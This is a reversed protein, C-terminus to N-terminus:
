PLEGRRDEPVDEISASQSRELARVYAVVAWRDKPSIQDGYAPMTRIGNSITNFLHGDERNRVTEEHMSLPPIWTGEQLREARVAVPGRGYGDLGHCQACYIDFLKRGRKLLIENIPMANTTAWRGEVLGRYLLDDTDAGGRSVTGPSQPRMARGDAFLPNVSQAKYKPQQDMDWILQLRTTESTRSRARLTVVPPILALAGVVLLAPLAWKRVVEPFRSEPTEEVVEVGISGAAELIQRTKVRDFKRDTAEVSVYFRDTTMRKTFRRSNFVGHYFTPLRNLAFMGFVAGFASFLITLEFAIPINAPVSFMPKGSVIVPYYISSTWWQLLLGTLFGAAGCLFVIYPLITRRVGMAEDLGHIPIPSHTDWQKYGEDRMVVSAALLSDTSDFEALLGFLRKPTEENPVNNPAKLDM